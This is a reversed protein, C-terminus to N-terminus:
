HEWYFKRLKKNFVTDNKIKDLLDSSSNNPCYDDELLCQYCYDYYAAATDECSFSGIYFRKSNFTFRAVYKGAKVTVGVKGSKTSNKRYARKPAPAEIDNLHAWSEGTIARSLTRRVQSLKDAIDGHSMNTNKALRRAEIVVKDTLVSNINKDGQQDINYFISTGALISDRENEKTTGEYLHDPNCCKPNNCIHCLMYPPSVKRYLYQYVVRHTRHSSDDAYLVGYGTKSTNGRYEWCWTDPNVDTNDLVYNFIEEYEDM